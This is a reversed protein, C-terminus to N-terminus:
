NFSYGEKKFVEEYTKINLKSITLGWDVLQNFYYNDPLANEIEKIKKQKNAHYREQFRKKNNQYYNKFYNPHHREDM